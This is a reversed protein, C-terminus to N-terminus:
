QCDEGYLRNWAWLGLQCLGMGVAWVVIVSVAALAVPLMILQAVACTIGSKAIM